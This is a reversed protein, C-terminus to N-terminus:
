DPVDDPLRLKFFEQQRAISGGPNGAYAAREDSSLIGLMEASESGDPFGLM